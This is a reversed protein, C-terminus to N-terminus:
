ASQLLFTRSDHHIGILYGAASPEQQKDDFKAVTDRFSNNAQFEARRVYVQCVRTTPCRGQNGQSVNLLVKGSVGLVARKSVFVQSM